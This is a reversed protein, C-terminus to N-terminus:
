RPHRADYDEVLLEYHERIERSVYYMVGTVLLGPWWPLLKNMGVWSFYRRVVHTELWILDYLKIASVTGLAIFALASFFQIFRSTQYRKRWMVIDQEPGPQEM